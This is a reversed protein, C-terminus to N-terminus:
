ENRLSTAPNSHAAKLAQTSVIVLAFVLAILGTLPFIWWAIETRIPYRQLYSNLAWWAIPSSVIFSLIVLVSFDRSILNVLSPVSAGLVKRIGIEKTRQEATFAALGFLGLGTIIIALTAFLSALQSTLNITTFKKQFEEDVFKYEFPYAGAHKEFISQVTKLSSQLDKTKTLRVTVNGTWNSDFVAFMPKVDNYVSGMLVDDAVGILKRKGGWLDLETGIPDTLGMLKIAAKNVIIAATDSKFEESFDRGEIM